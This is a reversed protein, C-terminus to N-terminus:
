TMEYTVIILPKARESLRCNQAGYIRGMFQSTHTVGLILTIVIIKSVRM